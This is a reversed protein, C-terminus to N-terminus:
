CNANARFFFSSGTSGSASTHRAIAYSSAPVRAIPSFFSWTEQDVLKVGALDLVVHLDSEIGILSGLQALDGGQIRGSLKLVGPKADPERDIKWM